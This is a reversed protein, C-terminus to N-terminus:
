AVGKADPNEGFWREVQKTEERNMRIGLKTRRFLVDEAGRAWEKEILYRLEIEYLGHGFAQGLDAESKANGLLSIVDTGYHRTLRRVIDPKLFPYRNCHSELLDEFGNVPFNGGPLEAGATWATGRKGLTEGIKELMSEALRRYTTIKGGFINLVTGDGLGEERRIIYDRTAEQAKSAGDDFLPRVGSYTWVIDQETVPETFYESAMQCLYATEQPTIEPTQEISDHDADTTGILTYDGEYPIAFIIRSDPNQFFYCRDHTFKRHIVIHSGRVLRINKSNNRGFVSKLVEDVWPGAANIVMRASVQRERGSALDNLRVKWHGDEYRASKVLTSRNIEAGRDQADRLNLVVLRSDEVWCDSYEYAKEFKKKLAKGADDSTLDVTTTPPLIKRGGLHDYLFLGVRIIWAPRSGKLWPMFLSLLRSAPTEGEFRMEKHYPIVFRLPWSIHPMARLLIEREILAERVLRFEFYELYRLGGHFLKTSASSTGGGFDGAECLCVSYGRGVADRAIGAGNIGGGVILLDFDASQSAQDSKTM